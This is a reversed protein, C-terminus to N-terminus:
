ADNEELRYEIPYIRTEGDKEYTRFTMVGSAEKTLESEAAAEAPKLDYIREPIGESEETNVTYIDFDLRCLGEELDTKERVIAVRSLPEVEEAPFFFYGKKYFSYTARSEAEPDKTTRLTKEELTLHFFQELVENVTELPLTYYFTNGDKAGLIVDTQHFRCYLYAFHVLQQHDFDDSNYGEPEFAGQEAIRSLFGNMKRQEAPDDMGQLEEIVPEPEPEPEPEPTPEPTIYVIEIKPTAKPAEEPPEEPLTEEPPLTEAPASGTAPIEPLRQDRVVLYTISVALIFLCCVLLVTLPIWGKRIRRAVRQRKERRADLIKQWNQEGTEWPVEMGERPDTFGPDYPEEPVKPKKEEAKKSAEATEPAEEEESVDATEPAVEEEPADASEPAEATEPAEAAEPEASAEDTEGTGIGLRDLLKKWDLKM